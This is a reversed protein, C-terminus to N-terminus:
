PTTLIEIWHARNGLRLTACWDGRRRRVGSALYSDGALHVDLAITISIM